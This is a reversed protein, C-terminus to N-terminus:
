AAENPCSSKSILELVGKSADLLVVDGSHFLRTAEQAGILCPLGYERAVVAGHSILGGIETVVGSLLPFYPSWGIDTSYTILIDGPQITEAEKVDFIVRAIGQVVGQSAPLAKISISSGRETTELKNRNIPVPNGTLMDSFKLTELFPHMNKRRVAKSLLRASRTKLLQGLEYHTFFYILDPDPIRGEHVMQQALQIYAQRFGNGVKILHSKGHERLGVARRVLPLIALLIKKPIYSLKTQLKAMAESPSLEEKKEQLNPSKLSNQFIPIISSPDMGWPLSRFEFEKFCRHGHDHLFQQFQKKPAENSNALWDLAEQKSMEAFKKAESSLAIAAALKKISSPVDASVVDTCSGMLVSSDTVVRMEFETDNASLLSYVVMTWISSASSVDIHLEAAYKYVHFNQNIKEYMGVATENKGFPINFGNEYLKQCEDLRNDNFLFQKIAPYMQVFKAKSGAVGYRHLLLKHVKEDIMERGLLSFGM